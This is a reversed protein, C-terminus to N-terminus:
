DLKKFLGRRELFEASLLERAEDNGEVQESWLKGWMAKWM